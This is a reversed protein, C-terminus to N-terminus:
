WQEDFNLTHGGMGGGRAVAIPCLVPRGLKDPPIELYLRDDKQYLKFLGEHIKADKVVTNFDPFRPPEAQTHVGFPVQAAAPGPLGLGAATLATVALATLLTRRM